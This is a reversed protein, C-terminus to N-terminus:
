RNVLTKAAEVIEVQGGYNLAFNLIMGTGQATQSIANESSNTNKQSAMLIEMIQVQINNKVLDPM